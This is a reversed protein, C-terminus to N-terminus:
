YPMRYLLSRWYEAYFFQVLMALGRWRTEVMVCCVGGELSFSIVGRLGTQRLHIRILTSPADADATVGRADAVNYTAHREGPTFSHSCCPPFFPSADSFPFKPSDGASFLPHYRTTPCNRRSRRNDAELMGRPCKQGSSRRSPIGRM